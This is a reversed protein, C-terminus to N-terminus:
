NSSVVKMDVRALHWNAVSDILDLSECIELSSLYFVCVNTVFNTEMYDKEKGRFGCVDLKLPSGKKVGHRWCGIQRQLGDCLTCFFM